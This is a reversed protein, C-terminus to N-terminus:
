TMRERWLRCANAIAEPDPARRIISAGAETALREAERRAEEETDLCCSRARIITVMLDVLAAAAIGPSTKTEALTRTLESVTRDVDALWGAGLLRELTAQMEELTPRPSTM